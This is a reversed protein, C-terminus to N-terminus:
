GLITKILMTCFWDVGGLYLSVVVTFAFIVATSLVTEKPDPWTVKRTEDRVELLFTKAQKLRSGVDHQVDSELVKSKAM